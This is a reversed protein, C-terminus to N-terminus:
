RESGESQGANTGDDAEEEVKEPAFLARVRGSPEAAGGGDATTGILKSRGTVLDMILHQGRIVNDGQTLVVSGTLTAVREKVDYTGQEGRAMEEPTTLVVDGEAEILSIKDASGGLGSGSEETDGSGEDESKVLHATLLDAHLHYRGQVADANGRAIAIQAEQLWEMTDASIEIPEDSNTDFQAEAPAIALLSAVVLGCPRAARRVSRLIGPPRAQVGGTM